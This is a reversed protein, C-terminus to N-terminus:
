KRAVGEVLVLSANAASQRMPITKAYEPSAYWRRAQEMSEFEIVVVSKPEVMGELVEFQGDVVIPRGGYPAFTPGAVNRYAQFAEPDTVELYTIVYAPM